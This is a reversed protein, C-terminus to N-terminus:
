RRADKAQEKKTIRGFINRSSYRVSTDSKLRSRRQTFDNGANKRAISWRSRACVARTRQTYVARDYAICRFALATTTTPSPCRFQVTSLDNVASFPISVPFFQGDRERRAISAIDLFANRLDGTRCVEGTGQLLRLKTWLAAIFLCRFDGLAFSSSAIRLSFFHM